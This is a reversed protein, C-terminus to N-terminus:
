FARSFRLSILGRYHGANDLSEQLFMPDVDPDKLPSGDDINRVLVRQVGVALTMHFTHRLIWKFGIESYVSHSTLDINSNDARLYGLGVYGRYALFPLFYRVSTTTHLVPGIRTGFGAYFELGQPVNLLYGLSIGLNGEAGHGLGVEVVWKRRNQDLVNRFSEDHGYISRGPTSYGFRKAHAPAAGLALLTVILPLTRRM